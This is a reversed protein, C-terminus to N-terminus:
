ASSGFVAREGGPAPGKTWEEAAPDWQRIIRAPNGAVVSNPPVSRTVVANPAVLSREGVTVGATIAVHPSIICGEGIRVSRPEAMPQYMLSTHPDEYHHYSDAIVINHGALVERDIDIEGVCSLWLGRGFTCRDGIRLRPEHRRGRYQEVVSFMAGEHILVDDGIEIRHPNLIGVPDAIFSNAGFAGFRHVGIKRHNRWVRQKHHLRRLAEQAARSM